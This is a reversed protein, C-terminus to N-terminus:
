PAFLQEVTYGSQRLLTLISDEPLVLHMLGVPVFYSHPEDGELMTCLRDAMARNRNTVLASHYESM